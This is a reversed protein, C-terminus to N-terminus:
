PQSRTDRMLFVDSTVITKLINKITVDSGHSAQGLEAILPADKNTPVRGNLYEFWHHVYCSHAQPSEALQDILGAATDWSRAEGDFTLTGSADIPHPGESERFAGLADYNEFAFGPPNILPTHCAGGCQGTANQIRQRNTDGTVGEPISFNDPPPPIDICLVLEDVFVGRHIPNPDYPTANLALFGARTLVGKRRVPDLEVRGFAEAPPEVDYIAAIEADAFTHTSTMLTRYTGDTDFVVDKIYRRLEHELKDPTDDNYDPFTDSAKTMEDFHEYGYLQAHFDAITDLAKPDDLMRRVQVDLTDNRDLEGDRAATLLEGDPMTNWLAYSLKSAVEYGDLRVFTQDSTHTEVRYLFHPSQLIARLFLEAAREFRAGEAFVEPAQQMLALYADVEDTSLPRRHARFGVANILARSRTELDASSDAESLGELMNELLAPDSTVQTALGEAAERYDQWLPETVRLNEAIRDFHGVSLTDGIFSDSSPAEDLRLLDRVTNEWQRHTLRV